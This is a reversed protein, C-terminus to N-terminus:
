FCRQMSCRLGFRLSTCLILAFCFLLATKASTRLLTALVLKAEDVFFPQPSLTSTDRLVEPSVSVSVFFGRMKAYFFRLFSGREKGRLPPKAHGSRFPFFLRM